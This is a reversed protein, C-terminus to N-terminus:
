LTPVTRAQENADEEWEENTLIARDTLLQWYGSTRNDYSLAIAAHDQGFHILGPRCEGSPCGGGEVVGINHRKASLPRDRVSRCTSLMRSSMSARPVLAVMDLTTMENSRVCVDAPKVVKAGIGEQQCFRRVLVAIAM